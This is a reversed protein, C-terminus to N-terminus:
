RSLRKYAFPLFWPGTHSVCGAAGVVAKMEGQRGQLSESELDLAEVTEQGLGAPQVQGDPAIDVTLEHGRGASGSGAVIM